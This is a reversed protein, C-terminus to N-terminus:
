CFTKIAILLVNTFTYDSSPDMYPINIVKYQMCITVLSRLVQWGSRGAESFPYLVGMVTCITKYLVNGEAEVIM